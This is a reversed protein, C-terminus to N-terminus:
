RLLHNYGELVFDRAISPGSVETETVNDGGGSEARENM